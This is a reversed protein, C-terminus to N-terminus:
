QGSPSAGHISILLILFKKQFFSRCPHKLETFIFFILGWSSVLNSKTEFIAQINELQIKVNCSVSKDLYLFQLFVTKRAQFLTLNPKFFVYLGYLICM